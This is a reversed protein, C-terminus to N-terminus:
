KKVEFGLKSIIQDLSYESAKKKLREKSDLIVLSDLGMKIMLISLWERRVTADYFDETMNDMSRVIERM